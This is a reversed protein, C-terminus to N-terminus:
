SGSSESESCRYLSTKSPFGLLWPLTRELRSPSTQCGSAELGIVAPNNSCDPNILRSPIYKATPCIPPSFLPPNACRVSISNMDLSKSCQVSATTSPKRRSGNGGLFTAQCFLMPGCTCRPAPKQSRPLTSIPKYPCHFPSGVSVSRRINFSFRPIITLLSPICKVSGTGSKLIILDSSSFQISSEIPEEGRIVCPCPNKFWPLFVM